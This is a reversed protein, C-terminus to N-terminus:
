WTLHIPIELSATTEETEVLYDTNDALFLDGDKTYNFGAVNMRYPISILDPDVVPDAVISFDQFLVTISDTAAALRQSTFFEPM